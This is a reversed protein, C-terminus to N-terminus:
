RKVDMVNHLPSAGGLQCVQEAYLLFPGSSMM